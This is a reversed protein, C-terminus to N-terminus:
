VLPMVEKLSLPMFEDSIEPLLLGGHDIYGSLKRAFQAVDGALASPILGSLFDAHSRGRRYAPERPPHQLYREIDDIHPAVLLTASYYLLGKAQYVCSGGIKRNALVLDSKGDHYVSDYGLSQMGEVLWSTLLDFIRHTNNIGTTQVAVSVIVNGPDIVVACGGGRRRMIPIRDALCHALNLERTPDSGQGLVVALDTPQYVRIRSRGDGRVAELLPEDDAYPIIPLEPTSM